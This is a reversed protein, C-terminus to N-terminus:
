QKIYSMNWKLVVTFNNTKDVFNLHYIYIYIFRGHPVIIDVM